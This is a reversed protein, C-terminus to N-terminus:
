FPEPDRKSSPEEFINQNLRNKRRIKRALQASQGTVDWQEDRPIQTEDVVWEETQLDVSSGGVSPTISAEESSTGVRDSKSEADGPPAPGWEAPRAFPRQKQLSKLGQLGTDLIKHKEGLRRREVSSKKTEGALRSVDEFSLKLVVSSRFLKSVKGILCDEIALVSVDDIFRCM